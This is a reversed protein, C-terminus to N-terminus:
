ANNREKKVEALKERLLTALSQFEIRCRTIAFLSTVLLISPEIMYRLFPVILISFDISRATINLINIVIGIIATNRIYVWGRNLVFPIFCRIAIILYVITTAIGAIWSLWHSSNVQVLDRIGFVEIAYCLQQINSITPLIAYYACFLGYYLLECYTVVIYGM